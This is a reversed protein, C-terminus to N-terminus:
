KHSGTRMCHGARTAVVKEFERPPQKCSSQSYKGTFIVTKIAVLFSIYKLKSVIASVYKEMTVHFLQLFKLFFVPFTFM